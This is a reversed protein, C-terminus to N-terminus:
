GLLPLCFTRALADLLLGFKGCHKRNCDRQQAAAAAATEQKKQQEPTVLPVTVDEGAKILLPKCDEGVLSAKMCLKPQRLKSVDVLHIKQRFWSSNRKSHRGVACNKHDCKGHKGGYKHRGRHGTSGQDLDEYALQGEYPIM